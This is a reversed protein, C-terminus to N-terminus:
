VPTGHYSNGIIEYDFLKGLENARDRDVTRRRIIVFDRYLSCNAVAWTIFPDTYNKSRAKCAALCICNICPNEMVVGKFPGSLPLRVGVASAPPKCGSPRAM